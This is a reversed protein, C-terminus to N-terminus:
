GTVYGNKVALQRWELRDNKLKALASITKAMRQAFPPASEPQPHAILAAADILESIGPKKELPKERFSLLFEILRRTEDEPLKSERGSDAARKKLASAVIKALVKEKPFEIEHFVCRRLFADPLQKEENSTVVVFPTFGKPIKAGDPTEAMTGPGDATEPPFTIDSKEGALEPVRFSLDEIERLLDNPFDRPAKDIEDIVVVSRLPAEAHVYSRQGRLLRAVSDLPHADLIARGLAQYEIYAGTEHLDATKGLRLQFEALQAERFRGIADYTYFLDRAEATSKTSFSHVHAVGRRRAIAYGLETKGCGPEGSVLLPRKLWLAVAVAGVLDPNFIYGRGKSTPRGNDLLALDLHEEMDAFDQEEM